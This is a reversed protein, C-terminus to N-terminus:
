TSSTVMEAMPGGCSTARSRVASWSSKRCTIPLNPHRKASPFVEMVAVVLCRAAYTALRRPKFPDTVLADHMRPTSLVAPPLLALSRAFVLFASLSRWASALFLRSWHRLFTTPELAM